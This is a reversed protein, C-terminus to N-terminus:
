VTQIADESALSDLAEPSGCPSGLQRRQCGPKRRCKRMRENDVKNRLACFRLWDVHVIKHLSIQVEGLKSCRKLRLTM